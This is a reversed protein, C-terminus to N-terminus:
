AKESHIDIVTQHRSYGVTHKTARAFNEPFVASFDFFVHEQCEFAFDKTTILVTHRWLIIVDYFKRFRSLWSPSPSLKIKWLYYKLRRYM